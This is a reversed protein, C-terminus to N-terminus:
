LCVSYERYISRKDTRHRSESRLDDSPFFRLIRQPYSIRSAISAEPCGVTVKDVVTGKGVVLSSDFSQIVPVIYRMSAKRQSM